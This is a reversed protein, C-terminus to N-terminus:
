SDSDGDDDADFAEDDESGEEEDFSDADLGGEASVVDIGSAAAQAAAPLEIGWMKELNYFVRVEPRFLHIIVDGGDVLVWDCLPQGEIAIGHVGGARLRERLNEAMSGVHRSSRGTAIVLYDAISSRGALDIVM